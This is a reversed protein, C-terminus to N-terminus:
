EDDRLERRESEGDGAADGAGLGPVVLAPDLEALAFDVAAVVV